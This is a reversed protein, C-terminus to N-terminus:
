QNSVTQGQAAQRKLLELRDEWRCSNIPQLARFFLGREKEEGERGEQFLLTLGAAVSAQLSRLDSRPDKHGARNPGGPGASIIPTFTVTTM